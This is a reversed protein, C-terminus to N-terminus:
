AIQIYIIKFTIPPRRSDEVELVGHIFKEHSRSIIYPRGKTHLVINDICGGHPTPHM